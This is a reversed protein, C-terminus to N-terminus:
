ARNQIFMFGSPYTKLQKRMRETTAKAGKESKCKMHFSQLEIHDNAVIEATFMTTWKNDQVGLRPSVYVITGMRPVEIEIAPLMVKTMSQTDTISM